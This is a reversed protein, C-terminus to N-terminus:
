SSPGHGHGPPHGLGASALATTGPDSGAAGFVTVEHGTRRLERVLLSVVLEIGGYGSPPLPYWPPAIMAIRLTSRCSGFTEARRM